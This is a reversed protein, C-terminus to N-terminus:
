IASRKKFVLLETTGPNMPVIFSSSLAFGNHGFYEEAVARPMTAPYSGNRIGSKAWSEVTDVSLCRETV